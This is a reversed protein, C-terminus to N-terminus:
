RGTPQHLQRIAFRICHQRELKEFPGSGEEAQCQLWWRSRLEDTDSIEVVAGSEWSQRRLRCLNSAVEQDWRQWGERKNCGLITGWRREARSLIEGITHRAEWINRRQLDALWFHNRRPFPGIVKRKGMAHHWASEAEYSVQRNANNMRMEKQFM